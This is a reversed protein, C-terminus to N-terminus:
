AEQEQVAAVADRVKADAAAQAAKRVESPKPLTPMTLGQEKEQDEVERVLDSLWELAEESTQRYERDYQCCTAALEVLSVPADEPVGVKLADLDLDFKRSPPRDLFVSGDPLADGAQKRYILEWLILGFSYVDARNDYGEGWIVEPAMHTETGCITMPTVAGAKRAFGYDSAVCRWDDDVLINECKIDRHIFGNAHLEVIGTLADRAMRCRLSWPLVPLSVECRSVLTSLDGGPLFDTVMYVAKDNYAAGYYRMLHRGGGGERVNSIFQLIELESNLYKELDRQLGAIKKIAVTDGKYKGRFVTSTAGRGIKEELVLDEFALVFKDKASM